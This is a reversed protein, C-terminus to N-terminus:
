GDDEVEFEQNNMIAWLQEVGRVADERRTYLESTAVTEGNGGKVVFYWADPTSLDATIGVAHEAKKVVAKPIV